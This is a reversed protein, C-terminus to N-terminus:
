AAGVPSAHALWGRKMAEIPHESAWGNCAHCADITNGSRYAQRVGGARARTEIEHLGEVFLTCVTREGMRCPRTGDGVAEAVAPQYHDAYFVTMAESRPNLPDRPKDGFRPATSSYDHEYQDSNVNHASHHKRRGCSCPDKSRTM